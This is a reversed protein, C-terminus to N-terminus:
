SVWEPIILAPDSFFCCVRYYYAPNAHPSNLGWLQAISQYGSATNVSRSVRGGEAVTSGHCRTVTYYSRFYLDWFGYKWVGGEAPHQIHAGPNVWQPQLGYGDTSNVLVLTDSDEPPNAETAQAISSSLFLTTTALGAILGAAIGKRKFM